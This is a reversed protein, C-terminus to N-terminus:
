EKSELSRVRKELEETEIARRCTELLELFEKGESTTLKGSAVKRVVTKTSHSVEKATGTPLTGVAVTAERRSPLIRDLLLRMIATNGKLAEAIGTRM